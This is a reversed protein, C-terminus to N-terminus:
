TWQQPTCFVDYHKWTILNEDTIEDGHFDTDSLVREVRYGLGRLLGLLELRQDRSTHKNVDVLLFPRTREILGRISEVIFKDFGEADIKVVLLDSSEQPCTRWSLSRAAAM